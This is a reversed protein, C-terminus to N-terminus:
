KKISGERVSYRCALLSITTAESPTYEITFSERFYLDRISLLFAGSSNCNYLIADNTAFWSILDYYVEIDDIVVRLKLTDKNPNISLEDIIGNGEVYLWRVKNTDTTTISSGEKQLKTTLPNFESTDISKVTM